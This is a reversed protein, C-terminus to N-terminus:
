RGYSLLVVGVNRFDFFGLAPCKVTQGNGRGRSVVFVHLSYSRRVHPIIPMIADRRNYLSVMKTASFRM